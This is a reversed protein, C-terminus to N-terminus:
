QAGGRHGSGAPRLAADAGALKATGHAPKAAKPHSKDASAAAAVRPAPHADRAL